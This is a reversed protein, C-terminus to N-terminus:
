SVTWKSNALFCLVNKGDSKKYSVDVIYMGMEEAVSSGIELAINETKNAM